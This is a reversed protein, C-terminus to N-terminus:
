GTPIFRHLNDQNSFVKQLTTPSPAALNFVAKLTTLFSIFVRVKNFLDVSKVNHSSHLIFDVCTSSTGPIPYRMVTQMPLEIHDPDQSKLCM